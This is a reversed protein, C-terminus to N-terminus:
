RSDTNSGSGSVIPRLPPIPGTWKEPDVHNKVLGYLRGPKPEAPILNPVDEPHIYGAEVGENVVDKM